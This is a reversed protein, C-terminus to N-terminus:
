RAIGEGRMDGARSNGTAMAARAMAPRTANKGGMGRSDVTAMAATLVKAANVGNNRRHRRNERGDGSERGKGGADM